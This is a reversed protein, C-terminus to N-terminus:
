DTELFGCMGQAQLEAMDAHALKAVEGRNLKGRKYINAYNYVANRYGVICGGDNNARRSGLREFDWPSWDPQLFRLFYDRTWIAPQLSTRYKARQSAMIMDHHFPSCGFSYSNNSLDLKVAGEKLTGELQTIRDLDIPRTLWYDDLLLAFYPHECNAFVSRLTNTWDKQESGGEMVQVEFNAPLDPIERFGLVTVPMESDWYKNFLYAFGPILHDYSNYTIVYTRM